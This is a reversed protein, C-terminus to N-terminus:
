KDNFYGREGWSLKEKLVDFYNLENPRIFIAKNKAVQIKIKENAKISLVRQGDLIIKAGCDDKTSAYFKFTNAVILPRQTLSHDNISNLTYADTDPHIISGNCSLNYATSGTPTAVMLGDSKYSNFLKKNEDFVDINIMNHVKPSSIIIENFCYHIKNEINIQLLIRKRIKYNNTKINQLFNKYTNESLHALFGLKGMNIGITPKLNKYSQAITSIIVGDGGITIFMDVKKALKKITKYNTNTQNLKLTNATKKDIFTKFGYSILMKQLITYTQKIKTQEKKQMIPKIIIAIKKIKNKISYTNSNKPM